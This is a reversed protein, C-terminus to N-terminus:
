LGSEREACDSEARQDEDATHMAASLRCEGPEPRVWIRQSTLLDADPALGPNIIRIPAALGQLLELCEAVQGSLREVRAMVDALTPEDPEDAEPQGKDDALTEARRKALRRARDHILKHDDILATRRRQAQAVVEASAIVEAEPQDWGCSMCVFQPLLARESGMSAARQRAAEETHDWPAM